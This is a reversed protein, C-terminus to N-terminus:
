KAEETPFPVWAFCLAGHTPTTLKDFICCYGSRPESVKQGACDLHEPDWALCNVCREPVKAPETNTSM